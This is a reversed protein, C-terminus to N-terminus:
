ASSSARDLEIAAPPWGTVSLAFGVNSLVDSRCIFYYSYATPAARPWARVLRGSAFEEEALSWRVLAVGLGRVAAEIALNAQSLRMGAVFHLQDNSCIRALSALGLRQRRDRDTCRPAAATAGSGFRGETARAPGTPDPQM